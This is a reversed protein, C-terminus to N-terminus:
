TWILWYWQPRRLACCTASCISVGTGKSQCTCFCLRLHLSCNCQLSLRWETFTEPQLLDELALTVALAPMRSLSVLTFPRADGFPRLACLRECCTPTGACEIMVAAHLHVQRLLPRRHWELAKRTALVLAGASCGKGPRGAHARRQKPQQRAADSLRVPVSHVLSCSTGSM